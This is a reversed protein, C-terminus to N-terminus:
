VNENDKNIHKNVVKGTVAWAVLAFWAIFSLGAPVCAVLIKRFHRRNLFFAIMAPLFWVILILLGILVISIINQDIFLSELEKLKSGIEFEM